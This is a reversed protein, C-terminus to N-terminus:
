SKVKLVDIEHELSAIKRELSGIRQNLRDETTKTSSYSLQTSIIMVTFLTGLAWWLGEDVWQTLTLIFILSLIINLTERRKRMKYDDEM